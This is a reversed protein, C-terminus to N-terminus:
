PQTSEQNLQLNLWTMVREAAAIHETALELTVMDVPAQGGVPEPYRVLDFTPNLLALDAATHQPVNVQLGLYELDHTRPALVGRQEIYIAKLGKEVAQQSFWSAAYHVSVEATRKATDLDALAQRWWPLTEPRM